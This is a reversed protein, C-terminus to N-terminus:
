FPVENDTIKQAVATRPATAAEILQYTAPSPTEDSAFSTCWEILTMYEYQDPTLKRIGAGFRQEARNFAKLAKSRQHKKFGDPNTLQLGSRTAQSILRDTVASIVQDTLNQAPRQDTQDTEFDGRTKEHTPTIETSTIRLPTCSVAGGNRNVAGGNPESQVAMGSIDVASLFAIRRVPARGAAGGAGGSRSGTVTILVGINTLVTVARKVQEASLQTADSIQQYTQDVTGSIKNTKSVLVRLVATCRDVAIKGAAATTIQAINDPLLLWNDLDTLRQGYPDRKRPTM